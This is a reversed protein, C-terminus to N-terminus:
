KGWRPRRLQLRRFVGELSVGGGAQAIRLLASKNSSDEGGVSYFNTYFANEVSFPDNDWTVLYAYKEGPTLFAVAQGAMDVVIGLGTGIPTITAGEKWVLVGRVASVSLTYEGTYQFGRRTKFDRVMNSGPVFNVSIPTDAYSVSLVQELADSDKIVVVEVEEVETIKQCLVNCVTFM